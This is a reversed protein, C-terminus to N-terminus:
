VGEFQQPSDNEMGNRGECKPATEESEAIFLLSPSQSNLSSTCLTMKQNHLPGSTFGGQAGLNTRASFFM